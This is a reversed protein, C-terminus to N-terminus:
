RASPGAKEYETLFLDVFEEISTPTTKEPTRESDFIHPNENLTRSLEISADAVSESIGRSMMSDKVQQYPFQVYKLDPKGVANGLIRTIELLTLDREGLIDHVSKGSFNLELLYRSAVQAIDRTAVLALPIDGRLSSGFINDRKIRGISGLFNEMFYAPRLHIVNLGEVRNLRQEQDHSGLLIGSGESLHAGLSSLHVVYMIGAEEIAATMNEGIQAQYERLIDAKLIPPIMVFVATAGEFAQRVFASDELRGVAAEVGKEVMPKLNVGSRSIARVQKGMSLLTTTIRRGINGTAGTIVIM